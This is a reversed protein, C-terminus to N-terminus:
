PQDRDPVAVDPAGLHRVQAPHSFAPSFAGDHSRAMQFYLEEFYRKAQLMSLASVLLTVSAVIACIALGSWTLHGLTAIIVGLLGLVLAPALPFWFPRFLYTLVLSKATNWRSRRSLVSSRASRSSLGSWDLHAPIEVISGRLLQTKYLIEVNIDVDVAKLSLARIFPGDYARVMGTLTKIDDLAASSLVRNAIRSRRALSGPVGTSRGGQMYASAVVVQAHTQEWATLLRAIHSEHYSLDSDLTIVVAGSTAGFGTRLAGGLGQNVTHRVLTVPVAIEGAAADVEGSTDDVSGDDVVVIEWDFRDLEAVAVAVRGLSARIGRAEQFAPVLISALRRGSQGRPTV